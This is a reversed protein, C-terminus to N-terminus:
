KLAYIDGGNSYFYLTGDKYAPTILFQEKTKIRNLFEGNLPNLEAIEGLSSALVLRGAVMVPGTWTIRKKRKKENEYASLQKMWVIAGDERKLCILQSDVSVIYIFDGAVWPTQITPISKDWLKIGTRLDIAAVIGSQSGAYVVGSHIVPRGAIDNISSLSTGSGARTLGESWLKRGNAVLSAVLEGSAFPTVITEGSLASSPSSLVRATEPLSSQNWLSAGTEADIAWLLSDVSVVYLKGNNVLPSSHVPANTKFSWIQNGNSADLALVEGFGSSVFLKGNEIALGGGIARAAKAMFGKKGVKSLRKNWIKRGNEADIAHIVLEGDISYIVNNAIVPPAILGNTKAAGAGVKERWLISLAGDGELNQPASSPIGGVNNWQSLKLAAPIEIKADKASDDPKLENDLGLIAIRGEEKAKKGGEEKSQLFPIKERVSACSTLPISGLLAFILATRSGKIM